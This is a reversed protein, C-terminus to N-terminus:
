AAVKAAALVAPLNPPCVPWGVSKRTNRRRRVMAAHTQQNDGILWEASVDCMRAIEDLIFRKPRPGLDRCWRSVTGRSVEFRDMLDSQKVEAYDLAMQLRWGLTVPPISLHQDTVMRYTHSM